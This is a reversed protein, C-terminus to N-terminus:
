NRDSIIAFKCDIVRCPLRIKQAIWKESVLFIATVKRSRIDHWPLVYLIPTLERPDPAWLQSTLTHWSRDWLNRSFLGRQSHTHTSTTHMLEWSIEGFPYDLAHLHSVMMLLVIEYSYSPAETYKNRTRPLSQRQLTTKTALTIRLIYGEGQSARPAHQTDVAWPRGGRTQREILSKFCFAEVM